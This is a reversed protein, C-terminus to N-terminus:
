ATRWSRKTRKMSGRNVNIQGGAYAQALQQVAVRAVDDRDAVQAVM